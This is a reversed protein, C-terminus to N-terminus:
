ALGCIRGGGAHAARASDFGCIWCRPAMPVQLVANPTREPALPEGAGGKAAEGAIEVNHQWAAEAMGGTEGGGGEALAGALMLSQVLEEAARLQVPTPQQNAPLSELPPFYFERVDEAFPLTNFYFGDPEFAESSSDRVAEIHVAGSDHGGRNGSQAVRPTLVGVVVGADARSTFKCRVIAVKHAALMARALASMATTSHPDGPEPVFLSM